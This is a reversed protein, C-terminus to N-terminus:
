KKSTMRSDHNFRPHPKCRFGWNLCNGTIKFQVAWAVNAADKSLEGRPNWNLSKGGIVNEAVYTYISGWKDWNKTKVKKGNVLIAYPEDGEPDVKVFERLRDYYKSREGYPALGMGKGPGELRGLGLGHTTWEYLMGLSGYSSYMSLIPEFNGDRVKWIVTSEYEGSGDVTLVAASSFGSFYYASAAHALHHRVPVIRIDSPAEEGLSLIVHRVLSRAFTLYDGSLIHTLLTVYYSYYDSENLLPIGYVGRLIYISLLAHIFRLKWPFLKPDWNVAFADVDKPKIGLRNKLYLFTQRLANIPPERISHKHRTYREEESAFVLKGDVIAAAAHDHEIPWNFGIVATM